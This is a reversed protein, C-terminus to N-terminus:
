RQGYNHAKLQNFLNFLAAFIFFAGISGNMNRYVGYRLEM